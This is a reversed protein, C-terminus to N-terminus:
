YARRLTNIEDAAAQGRVKKAAAPKKDKLIDRAKEVMADLKKRQKPTLQQIYDPSRKGAYKDLVKKANIKRQGDHPASLGKLLKQSTKDFDKRPNVENKEKKGGAKKKEAQARKSLVARDTDGGSRSLEMGSPGAPKAPEVPVEDAVADSIGPIGGEKATVGSDRQLEPAAADETPPMGYQAEYRKRVEATTEEDSMGRERGMELGRALYDEWSPTGTGADGVEGTQPGAPQRGATDGPKPTMRGIVLDTYSDVLEVVRAEYKDKEITGDDLEQDAQMIARDEFQIVARGAHRHAANTDGDGSLYYASALDSHAAAKGKKRQTDFTWEGNALKGGYREGSLRALEKSYAPLSKGTRSLGGGEKYSGKVHEVGRKLEYEKELKAMDHKRESTKQQQGRLSGAFDDDNFMMLGQGIADEDVIEEKTGDPGTMKRTYSGDDNKTIEYEVGEVGYENAVDTVVQLDGDMMWGKLADNVKIKRQRNGELRQYENDSRDTEIDRRRLAYERDDQGQDYVETERERQLAQHERNSARDRRAETRDMGEVAGSIARSLGYGSGM